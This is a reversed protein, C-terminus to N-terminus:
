VIGRSRLLAAAGEEGLRTLLEIGTTEAIAEDDSLKHIHGLEHAEIALLHAPTYGPEKLLRTDIVAFPIPVDEGYVAFGHGRSNLLDVLDGTDGEEIDIVLTRGDLESFRYRV